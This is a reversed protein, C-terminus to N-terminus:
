AAAGSLVAPTATAAIAVHAAARALALGFRTARHGGGERLELPLKERPTQTQLSRVFFATGAYAPVAKESTV